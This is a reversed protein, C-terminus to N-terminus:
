PKPSLKPILPGGNIASDVSKEFQPGGELFCVCVCLINGLQTM